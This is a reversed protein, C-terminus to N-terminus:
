FVLFDAHIKPFLTDTNRSSKWVTPVERVLENGHLGGLDGTKALIAIKETEVIMARRNGKTVHADPVRM